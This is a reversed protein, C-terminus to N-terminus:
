IRNSIIRFRNCNIYFANKIRKKWDFQCGSFHFYFVSFIAILRFQRLRITERWNVNFDLCFANKEVDDM